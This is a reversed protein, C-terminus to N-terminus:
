DTQSFKSWPNIETGEESNVQKALPKGEQRQGTNKIPPPSDRQWTGVQGWCLQGSGGQDWAGQDWARHSGNQSQLPLVDPLLVQWPSSHLFPLHPRPGLPVHPAGLERSNEPLVPQALSPGCTGATDPELGSHFMPSVTLITAVQTRIEGAWPVSMAHFYKM